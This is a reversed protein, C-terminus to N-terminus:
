RTAAFRQGATIEALLAVMRANTGADKVAIRVARDGLVSGMATADRLHLGRAAAAAVLEAAVPGEAPLHALLFNAAGPVVDWGLGALGVALEQRLRHTQTWLATYHDSSELARTAAVQAPLGVVWPPTISRLEELQHPAAALYAVRAGSLAYAKSMSKCVILNDHHAVLPETSEGVYDVYTEDVWLRTRPPLARVLREIEAATLFQGTPSNPNVLVVLDPGTEILAALHELDVRYGAARDLPLREVRAGVVKELVHAYEGYTPDLLVVRSDRDLWRPLARFILDSSGAGVLISEAPLGRAAGIAAVLGAADVPPSTQVLWALDRRLTDIVAPAPPFWADLVDANIVDHRRDLDDFGTGIADFFAGGHFCPAPKRLPVHLRWDVSREIAAVVPELLDFDARVTAVDAHMLEFNVAGSSTVLGTRLMGGRVYMATVEDRGIAVVRTGGRAEIWRFAAVMLTAALDTDRHEELVTLLRIEYTGSGVEFPLADRQFYKDISYGHPGPPTISVFAAVEGDRLAVLYRNVEDLRDTLRGEANPPHQGLEVAYVAHRARYIAERQTADAETVVTPTWTTPM